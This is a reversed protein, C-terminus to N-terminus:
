AKKLLKLMRDYDNVTNCNIWTNLTVLSIKDRSIESFYKDVIELNTGKKGAESLKGNVDYLREPSCFKWIQGSNHISRFPEKIFLERHETDFLFKTRGSVSEYVLVSKDAEIPFRNVTFVDKKERVIKQFDTKSFFLDGEAFIVEDPAYKKAANIGLYLSYASGYYEYHPNYVLETKDAYASLYKEFYATLQRYGCGGVLIIRSCGSAKKFMQFLITDLPDKRYYISKVAHKSLGKNFRVASGAATIILVKM